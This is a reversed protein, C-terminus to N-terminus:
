TTVLCEIRVFSDFYHCVSFCVPFATPIYLIGLEQIGIIFGALVSGVLFILLIQLYFIPVLM